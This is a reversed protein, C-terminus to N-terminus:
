QFWDILFYDATSSTHQFIIGKRTPTWTLGAAITWSLRAHANVYFSGSASWNSWLSGTLHIRLVHQVPLEVVKRSTTTVAGGGTRTVSIVDFQFAACYRLALELYNNDTGDDFRLGVYAGVTGSYLCQSIRTYANALGDSRKLFSRNGAGNSTVQVDSPIHAANVTVSAPTVFPAGAWSWASGLSSGVDWHDTVDQHNVLNSCVLRRLLGAADYNPFLDYPWGSAAYSGIVLSDAPNSEDFMLVACKRGASLQTPQLWQACYLNLASVSGDVRVVAKWTSRDFGLLTGKRITSRTLTQPIVSGAEGDGSTARLLQSLSLRQYWVLQGSLASSEGLDVRQPHYVERLETLYRLMDAAFDDHAIVDFPQLHFAPMAVLQARASAQTAKDILAQAAAAADAATALYSRAIYATLQRGAESQLDTAIREAGVTDGVVMAHTVDPLTRAASSYTVLPPHESAGSGYTYDASPSPSLVFSHLNYTTTMRSVFQFQAQLAALAEAASQGPQITYEGITLSWIASADFSASHIGALAVITEVLARLTLNTYTYHQHAHWLELLRYYNYASVQMRKGDQSRQVRSVVFYERAVRYATGAVLAGREILLDAGLRGTQLGDYAGDRNDLSLELYAAPGVDHLDYALIRSTDATLSSIANSKLLVSDAALYVTGDTWLLPQVRDAVNPQNLKAGATFYTADDSFSLYSDGSSFIAGAGTNTSMRYTLWYWSGIKEINVYPFDYAPHTPDTGHCHAHPTPTAFTWSGSIYFRQTCITATAYTAYNQVSVVLKFDDNESNRCAGISNVIQGYNYTAGALWWSDSSATYLRGRLTTYGAEAYFIAARGNGGSAACWVNNMYDAPTWIATEASWSVGDDASRRYYVTRTSDDQYLLVVYGNSYFLLPYSAGARITTWGSTWQSSTGPDTIRQVRIGTGAVKQARVIANAAVCAAGPNGSTGSMPHAFVQVPHALNNDRITLALSPTIATKKQAALLNAHIARTM